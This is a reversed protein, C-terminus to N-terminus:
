SCQQLTLRLNDLLEPDGLTVQYILFTRCIPAAHISHFDFVEDNHLTSQAEKACCCRDMGRDCM